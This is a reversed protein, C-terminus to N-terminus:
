YRYRYMQDSMPPTAYTLIDAPGNLLRSKPWFLKTLELVALECIASLIRIDNSTRQGDVFQAYNGQDMVFAQVTECAGGMSSTCPLTRSAMACATWSMATSSRDLLQPSVPLLLVKPSLCNSTFLTYLQIKHDPSRRYSLQNRHQVNALTMCCITAMVSIVRRCTSILASSNMKSRSCSLLATAVADESSRGSSIGRPPCPKATFM